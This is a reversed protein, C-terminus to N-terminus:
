TVARAAAAIARGTLFSSLAKLVTGRVWSAAVHRFWAVRPLYVGAQSWCCICTMTGSALGPRIDNDHRRLRATFGCRWHSFAILLGVVLALAVV